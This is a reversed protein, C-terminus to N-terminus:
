WVEKDKTLQHELAEKDKTLQYLQTQFGSVVAGFLEKLQRPDSFDTTSALHSMEIHHATSHATAAANAEPSPEAVTGDAM